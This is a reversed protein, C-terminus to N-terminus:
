ISERYPTFLNVTFSNNRPLYPRLLPPDHTNSIIAVPRMSQKLGNRIGRSRFRIYRNAEVVKKGETSVHVGRMIHGNPLNDFADDGGLPFYLCKIRITVTLGVSAHGERMANGIAVLSAPPGLFHGDDPYGCFVSENPAIAALQKYVQSAVIAFFM